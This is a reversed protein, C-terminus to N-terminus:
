FHLLRFYFNLIQYGYLLVVFTSLVMYPGFPISDKRSKKQFVLAIIGGVAGVIFALVFTTLAFEWGLFAGIMISLTLDGEGMGGKSLLIILGFLMFALAIGILSNFLANKGHLINFLIGIVAGPIVLADPIVGDFLDIFAVTILLSSFIIYFFFNISWGTKLGVLLFVFGTLAEILPYKPSIKAGCYRCRGKLFIYSLIPFLDYWALKAGCSTCHSPPKVISENRPVRYIVVNLFSGVVAGIAFNILSFLFGFNEIIIKM